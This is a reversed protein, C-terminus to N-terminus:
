YYTNQDVANTWLPLHIEWRRVEFNREKRQRANAATFVVGPFSRTQSLAANHISIIRVLQLNYHLLQKTAAPCGKVLRQIRVWDVTGEGSSFAVGGGSGGGREGEGGYPCSRSFYRIKPFTPLPLMPCEEYIHASLTLYIETIFPTRSAILLPKILLVHIEPLQGGERKGVM